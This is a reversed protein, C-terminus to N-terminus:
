LEDNDFDDISNTDEQPLLEVIQKICSQYNKIMSNYSQIAPNAREIDYNGQCMSVIPGKDEIEIKLKNLTYITKTSNKDEAYKARDRPVRRCWM